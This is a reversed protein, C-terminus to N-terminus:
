ATSIAVLPSITGIKAAAVLAFTGLRALGQHIAAIILLSVKWAILTPGETANRKLGYGGFPPASANFGFAISSYKVPHPIIGPLM